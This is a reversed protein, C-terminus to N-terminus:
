KGFHGGGGPLRTRMPNGQVSDPRLPSGGVNPEMPLGQVSGPRLPLGNVSEPRHDAGTNDRTGDSRLFPPRVGPQLQGGSVGPRALPTPSNFIRQVEYDLGERLINELQTLTDQSKLNAIIDAQALANPMGSYETHSGTIHKKNDPTIIRGQPTKSGQFILRRSISDVFRRLASDTIQGKYSPLEPISTINYAATHKPQNEQETKNPISISTVGFLHLPDVPQGDVNYQESGVFGVFIGEKEYTEHTGFANQPDDSPALEFVWGIATSINNSDDLFSVDRWTADIEKIRGRSGFRERVKSELIGRANIKVLADKASQVIERSAIATPAPYRDVGAREWPIM